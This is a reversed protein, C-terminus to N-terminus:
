VRRRIKTGLLKQRLEAAAKVREDEQTKFPALGEILDHLNINSHTLYFLRAIESPSLQAEVVYDGNLRLAAAQSIVVNEATGTESRTVQIYPVRMSNGAVIEAVTLDDDIITRRGHDRGRGHVSLRM